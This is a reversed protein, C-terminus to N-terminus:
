IKCFLIYNPDVSFQIPSLDPGYFLATDATNIKCDAHNVRNSTSYKKSIAPVQRNIDNTTTQAITAISRNHKRSEQCVKVSLKAVYPVQSKSALNSGRIACTVEVFTDVLGVVKAVLL